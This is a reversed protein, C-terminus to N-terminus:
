SSIARLPPSNQIGHLLQAGGRGLAQLFARVRCQPFKRLVFSSAPPSFRYPRFTALSSLIKRKCLLQAYLLRKFRTSMEQRARQERRTEPCAPLRLATCRAASQCSIGSTASVSSASNAINEAVRRKKACPALLIRRAALFFPSKRRTCASCNVRVPAVRSPTLHRPLNRGGPALSLASMCASALDFRRSSQQRSTIEM